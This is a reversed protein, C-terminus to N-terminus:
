LRVSGGAVRSPETLDIALDLLRNLDAESTAVGISARLAGVPVGDMCSRFRPISFDGDLCTRVRGAAFELAREAAGPNCFCGGRIAIGRQRATAQVAEYDLVRGGSYLNFAVVGGRAQQDAPGYVRVRSGLSAFRDLLGSTLASVHQQVSAMGVGTLWRLGDCVAPMALFNPTGDEFATGGARRRFLDNQVSAFQVTGGGFYGRELTALADRRALLAGIGSPYGFLKYYSLAVFDAPVEALSLSSTPAYAAADLLVQYGNAQADKVWRLPHHVGSFNSQAPYAFLSPAVTRPLWRRSDHARLDADLPVCRVIAGRTRAPVRLGNVSNHNDATLVLRSGARFPFAEALIRMAGSANATFVLDYEAPDADFFRLTLTRAEELSDTSALSPGSESHPNGFVDSLLRRADQKVLSEPYLASGTYDLYITGTADLRSFERARLESFDVGAAMLM